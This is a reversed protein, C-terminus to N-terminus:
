RAPPLVGASRWRLRPSLPSTLRRGGPPHGEQRIATRTRRHAPTQPPAPRHPRALGPRPRRVPSRPRIAAPLRHPPHVQRHRRHRAAQRAQPGPPPLPIRPLDQDPRSGDRSRRPRRRDLPQGQRHHRTQGQGRVPPGPARVPGLLGPARRGATPFRTMDVGTEAILEQAGTRGVGPIEDLQDVQRAFPALVEDIRATLAEAQATIADIRDLMMRLLWGHHDRFQGTLAEQLVSKKGRMSGRALEALVAPNRQGAILAELMDRGSKGFIDSIVSSLKIQTDELLKEARQKERTREQILIRRYRCLDRLERQWPPPVFSPRLMGREALKCLWAADLRDTKPRGPVNKVDRANVLWCEVADELLYFPPKWYTSTAEMVCLSVGQCILWDRLELLAATTTAFTRVEQLRRGPKDEHPVRACAVLSAKGIDLAAVRTVVEADEITEEVLCRGEQERV